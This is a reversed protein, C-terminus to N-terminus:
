GNRFEELEAESTAAHATPLYPLSALVRMTQQPPQTFIPASLAHLAGAADGRELNWLAFVEANVVAQSPADPRIGLVKRFEARAQVMDFKTIPSMGEWRPSANLEGALTSSPSRRM